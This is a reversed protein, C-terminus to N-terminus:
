DRMEIASIIISDLKKHIETRFNMRFELNTCTQERKWLSHNLLKQKEKFFDVNHRANKVHHQLISVPELLYAQLQEKSACDRLTELIPDMLLSNSRAPQLVELIVIMNVNVM